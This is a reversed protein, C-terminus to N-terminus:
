LGACCSHPPAPHPAPPHPVVPLVVRCPAACSAPWPRARARVWTSDDRLTGPAAAGAQRLQCIEGTCFNSVEDMDIQPPSPTAPAPPSALVVNCLNCAPLASPPMLLPAAATLLVAPPAARGGVWIGDWPVLGHHQQLLGSYWARTRPSFFDPFHSAGPWVQPIPIPAVPLAAPSRPRTFACRQAHSGAARQSHAGLCGEDAYPLRVASLAHCAAAACRGWTPAATWGGCSCMRSLVRMTRHM